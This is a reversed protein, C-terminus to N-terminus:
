AYDTSDLKSLVLQEIRMRPFNKNMDSYPRVAPASFDLSRAHFNLSNFCCPNITTCITARSGIGLVHLGHSAGDRCKSSPKSRTQNATWITQGFKQRLKGRVLRPKLDGMRNSQNSFSKQVVRVGILEGLSDAVTLPM